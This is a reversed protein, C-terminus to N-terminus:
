GAAAARNNDSAPARRAAMIARVQDTFTSMHHYRARLIADHFLKPYFDDGMEFAIDARAMEIARRAFIYGLHHQSSRILRKHERAFYPRLRPPVRAIWLANLQETNWGDRAMHVDMLIRMARIYRYDLWGLRQEPPSFFGARDAIYESYTAWGEELDHMGRLRGGCIAGGRRAYRSIHHGPTIEHVALMRYLKTDYADETFYLVMQNLSYSAVANWRHPTTKVAVGASEANYDYIEGSLQTRATQLLAEYESQIRAPDTRFFEPLAAFEELTDAAGSQTIRNELAALESEIETIEAEAIAEIEDIGYPTGTLKYVYAEIDHVKSRSSTQKLHWLQSQMHGIQSHYLYRQCLPLHSPNLAKLRSLMDTTQESLFIDKPANVTDPLLTVVARSTRVISRYMQRESLAVADIDASLLDYAARTQEPTMPPVHENAFKALGLGATFYATIILGIWSRM